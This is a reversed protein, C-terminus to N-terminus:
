SLTDTCKESNVFPKKFSKSWQINHGCKLTYSTFHLVYVTEQQFHFMKYERFKVMLFDYM